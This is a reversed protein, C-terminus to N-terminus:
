REAGICITVFYIRKVGAQKLVRACAEITSGTTYIDDVLLVTEPVPHRELWKPNVAFAEQLNKLRESPNLNRQPMTKRTRILMRTEVPIDWRKVLRRALEFAQNFGRRRLRSPHVPVPILVEPKLYHVKKALRFDLLEAYFDLYERRNKYKIASMSHKAAENYNLVAMGSDFTRPHRSCDLCYEIAEGFVEKGCKKCLPQRVPSLYQLCM